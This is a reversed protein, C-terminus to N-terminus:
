PGAAPATFREARRKVRHGERRERVEEVDEVLRRYFWAKTLEILVLYCVVMGVLTLFFGFPLSQFGLPGALPSEPLLMGVLVVCAASLLM